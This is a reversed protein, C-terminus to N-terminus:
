LWSRRPHRWPCVRTHAHKRYEKIIQCTCGITDWPPKFQSWAMSPHFYCMWLCRGGSKLARYRTGIDQPRQLAVLSLKILLHLSYAVPIYRWDLWDPM